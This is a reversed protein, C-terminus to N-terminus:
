RKLALIDEIVAAPEHNLRKGTVRLVRVDHKQLTADRIRDSEFTRPNNHYPEGDLEVYTLGARILQWTAVVGDLNVGDEVCPV